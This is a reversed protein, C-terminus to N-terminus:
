SDDGFDEDDDYSGDDSGAKDVNPLQHNQIADAVSDWSPQPREASTAAHASDAGTPSIAPSVGLAVKAADSGFSSDDWSNEPDRSGSAHSLDMKGSGGRGGSAQRDLSTSGNGSGGIGIPGGAGTRSIAPGGGGGPSSHANGGALPGSGALNTTRVQSM